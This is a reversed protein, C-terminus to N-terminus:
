LYYGRGFFSIQEIEWKLGIKETQLDAPFFIIEFNSSLFSRPPFPNVLAGPRPIKSLFAAAFAASSPHDKHQRHLPGALEVLAHDRLLVQLQM